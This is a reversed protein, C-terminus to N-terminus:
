SAELARALAERGNEVVPPGHAPLVLEIPLELLRRLAAKVGAPTVDKVLWDDPCLRVGDDSGHILDGAFLARHEELWLLAEPRGVADHAVVGGPLRDGARFPNPSEVEELREIRREDAWVAGGDYREIIEASSREHFFVTLLIQPAGHQAVDADLAAWFRDRDDHPVLPDVLVLEDGGPTVYAHCAVIPDWDADPEKEWEPHRALWRWLRPRLEQVHM